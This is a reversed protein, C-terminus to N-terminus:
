TCRASVPINMSPIPPAVRQCYTVERAAPAVVVDFPYTVVSATVRCRLLRRSSSGGAHTCTTGELPGDMAGHSIQSRMYGDVALKAGVIAAVGAKLKLVHPAQQQRVITTDEEQEVALQKSNPNAIQSVDNTQHHVFVVLAVIVIAAITFPLVWQLWM